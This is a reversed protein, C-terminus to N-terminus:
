VGHSRESDCQSRSGDSDTQRWRKGNFGRSRLDLV